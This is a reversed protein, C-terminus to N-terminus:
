RKTHARVRDIVESLTLQGLERDKESHSLLSRVRQGGAEIQFLGASGGYPEFKNTEGKLRKLFMLLDSNLNSKALSKDEFRVQTGDVVLEGGYITVIIPATPGPSKLTSPGARDVIVREPKVEYDTYVDTKADTLYSRQRILRGHVILDAGAALDALAVPELDRAILIVVPKGKSEAVREPITGQRAHGMVSVLCAM